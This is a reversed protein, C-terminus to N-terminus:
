HDRLVHGSNSSDVEQRFPAMQRRKGLMTLYRLLDILEDRRLSATLGPPMLSLRSTELEEIESNPVSVIKGTADRLLTARESRRQLTGSAITGDNRVIVM